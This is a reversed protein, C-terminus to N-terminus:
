VERILLNPIKKLGEVFTYTPTGDEPTSILRFDVVVNEVAVTILNTVFAADAEVNVDKSTMLYFTELKKQRDGPSKNGPQGSNNSEPEERTRELGANDLAHRHRYTDGFFTMAIENANVVECHVVLPRVGQPPYVNLPGITMDKPFVDRTVEVLPYDFDEKTLEFDVNVSVEVQLPFQGYKPTSAHKVTYVICNDLEMMFNQCAEAKGAIYFARLWNQYQMNYPAFTGTSVTVIHLRQMLDEWDRPRQPDEEVKKKLMVDMKETFKFDMQPYGKSHSLTVLYVSQNPTILRPFLCLGDDTKYILADSCIKTVSLHAAADPTRTNARKRPSGVFCSAKPVQPMPEVCQPPTYPNVSNTSSEAAYKTKGM